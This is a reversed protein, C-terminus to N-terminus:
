TTMPFKTECFSVNQETMDSQYNDHLQRQIGSVFWSLM